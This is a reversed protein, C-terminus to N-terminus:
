MDEYTDTVRSTDFVNVNLLTTDIGRFALRRMVRTGGSRNDDESMDVTTLEQHPMGYCLVNFMPELNDDRVVLMSRIRYDVNLHGNRKM